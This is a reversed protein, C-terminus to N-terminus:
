FAVNYVTPLPPYLEFPLITKASSKGSVAFPCQWKAFSYFRIVVLIKSVNLIIVSITIQSAIRAFFYKRRGIWDQDVLKWFFQLGICDQDPWFQSWNQDLGIWDQDTSMEAPNLDSRIVWHVNQVPNPNWFDGIQEVSSYIAEFIWSCSENRVSYQFYNCCKKRLFSYKIWKRAKM